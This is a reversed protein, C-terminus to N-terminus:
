PRIEIQLQAMWDEVVQAELIRARETGLKNEAATRAEDFTMPRSEEVGNLRLIWLNEGEAVLDSVDGAKMDLVAKLVTFGFHHPLVWRSIPGLHGGAQASPHQSHKRAEDEFSSEGNRIRHVIREGNQYTPRDNDGALPLRIAALDYFTPRTFDERHSEFYERIEDDTPTELKHEVWRIRTSDALM